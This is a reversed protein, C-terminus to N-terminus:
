RNGLMTLVVPLLRHDQSKVTETEEIKRLPNHTISPSRRNDKRRLGKTDPHIM